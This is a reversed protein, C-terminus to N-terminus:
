YSEHLNPVPPRVCFAFNYPTVIITCPKALHYYNYEVRCAARRQVMELKHIDEKIHPDWVTSSYEIIPKVYSLYSM